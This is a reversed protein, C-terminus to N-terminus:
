EKIGITLNVLANKDNNHIKYAEAIAALLANLNSNGDDWHPPSTVLEITVDSLPQKSQAELLLYHTFPHQRLTAQDREHLTTLKGELSQVEKLTFSNLTYHSSDTLYDSSAYALLPSFDVAVAFQLSGHRDFDLATLHQIYTKERYDRDPRFSGKKFSDSLVTYDITQAANNKFGIKSQFGPLKDLNIHQALEQMLAQKAMILAYYPKDDASFRLM